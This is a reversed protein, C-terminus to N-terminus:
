GLSFLTNPSDSKKEKEDFQLKQLNGWNKCIGAIEDCLIAYIDQMNWIMNLSFPGCLWDIKQACCDCFFESNKQFSQISNHYINYIFRLNKWLNKFIVVVFDTMKIAFIVFFFRSIRSPSIHNLGPKKRQWYHSIIICLIVNIFGILTTDYRIHSYKLGKLQWSPFFTNHV